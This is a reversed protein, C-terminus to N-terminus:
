KADGDASEDYNWLLVGHTLGGRAPNGQDSM